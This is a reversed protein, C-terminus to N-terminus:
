DAVPLDDVPTSRRSGKGARLCEKRVYTGHEHRAGTGEQGAVRGPLEGVFHKERQPLLETSRCATARRIVFASTRRTRQACAPSGISPTTSGSRRDFCAARAVSTTTPM